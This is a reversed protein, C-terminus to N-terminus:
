LRSAIWGWIVLISQIGISTLIPLSLNDDVGGLELGEAVAAVVGSALCLGVLPISRGQSSTTFAADTAVKVSEAISDLVRRAGTASHNDSYGSRFGKELGSWGSGFPGPARSTGFVPRGFDDRTSLGGARKGIEAIPTAWFLGATMSAVVIAALFGATSKRGAFPPSPLAPTKAGYLRGFTSAATDAWSLIMVAVCAVDAPFYKLCTIVGILYWVVGNVKKKESERMLPGLVAEYIREFAPINLRLADATVVVALFICLNRVILPLDAHSVYLYLVLFGISSHFVKRPIEWDKAKRKETVSKAFSEVNSNGSSRNGVIKEVRKDDKRKRLEERNIRGSRKAEATLSELGSEADSGEEGIKGPVSGIEHKGKDHDYGSDYEDGEQPARSIARLVAVGKQLSASRARMSFSPTREPDDAANVHGNGDLKRARSNTPSLMRRAEVSTPIASSTTQVSSASSSGSRTSRVM